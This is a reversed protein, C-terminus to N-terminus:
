YPVPSLLDVPVLDGALGSQKARAGVNDGTTTTVIGTGDAASKLYDGANCGGTGIQLWAEKDSFTYVLLNEGAIAAFGDDLAPYPANRTGTQSIGFIKGGAPSIGAITGDDSQIVRGGVPSTADFMVFRSPAINGNSVRSESM